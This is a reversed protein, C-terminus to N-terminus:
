DVLGFISALEHMEDTSLTSAELLREPVGGRVGGGLPKKLAPAAGPEPHLATRPRKSVGHSKRVRGVPRRHGARSRGGLKRPPAEDDALTPGPAVEPAPPGKPLTRIVARAAADGQWFAAAHAPELYFDFASPPPRIGGDPVTSDLWQPAVPPLAAVAATIASAVDFLAASRPACAEAADADADARREACAGEHPRSRAVRGDVLTHEDSSLTANNVASAFPSTPAGDDRASVARSTPASGDPEHQRAAPSACTDRAALDAPSTGVRLSHM